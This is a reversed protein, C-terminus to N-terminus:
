RSQHESYSSSLSGSSPEPAVDPLEPSEHRVLTVVIWVLEALFALGALAIVALRGDAVHGKPILLAVVGLSLALVGTNYAFRARVTWFRFRSLYYRQERRLMKRRGPQDSDPWWDELESPTAVYQRAMFSCEVTAVFAGAALVFLLLIASVLRFATASTLVVAVLAITVSALLPAAITGMGDLATPYGYPRPPEWRPQQALRTSL